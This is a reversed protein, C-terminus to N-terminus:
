VVLYPRQMTSNPVCLFLSLRYTLRTCSHPSGIASIEFFIMGSIAFSSNQALIKLILGASQFSMIADPKKSGVPSFTVDPYQSYGIKLSTLCTAYDYLLYIGFVQSKDKLCPIVM